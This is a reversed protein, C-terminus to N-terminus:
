LQSVKRLASPSYVCEKLDWNVLLHESYVRRSIPQAKSMLQSKFYRMEEDMM